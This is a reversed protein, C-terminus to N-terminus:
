KYTYLSFGSGVPTVLSLSPGSALANDAPFIQCKRPGPSANRAARDCTGWADSGRSQEDKELYM